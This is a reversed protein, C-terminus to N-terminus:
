QPMQAVALFPASAGEKPLSRITEERPPLHAVARPLFAVTRDLRTLITRWSRAVSLSEPAESSFPLRAPPIM